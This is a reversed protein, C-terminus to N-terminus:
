ARRKMATCALHVRGRPRRIRKGSPGDRSWWAGSGAIIIDYREAM